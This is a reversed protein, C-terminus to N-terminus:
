DIVRSGATILDFSDDDRASFLLVVSEAQLRRAVFALVELSERDLQHADDIVCVVPQRLGAAALLSLVGLGVLYRDPPPGDAVGSAVELAERQRRPIEGLLSQLPMGLRQLGAYPLASEAHFGTVRLVTASSISQTTSRLLTTKGIGPEGRLILAGSAGNRAGTILGRILQVDHSRGLLPVVLPVEEGAETEM